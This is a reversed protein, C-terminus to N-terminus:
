FKTENKVSLQQYFCFFRKQKVSFFSNIIDKLTKVKQKIKEIELKKNQNKLLNYENNLVKKIIELEDSKSKILQNELFASSVQFIYNRNKKTSYLFIVVLYSILVM